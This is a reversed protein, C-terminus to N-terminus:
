CLLKASALVNDHLDARIGYSNNASLGELGTTTLASMALLSSGNLLLDRRKLGGGEQPTGNALERRPPENIM